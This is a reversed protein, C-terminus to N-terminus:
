TARGRTIAGQPAQRSEMWHTFNRLVGKDVAEHKYASLVLLDAALFTSLQFLLPLDTTRITAIDRALDLSHKARFAMEFDVATVDDPLFALEVAVTDPMSLGLLDKMLKRRREENLFTKM